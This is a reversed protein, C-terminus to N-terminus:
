RRPSTGTATRAPTCPRRSATGAPTGCITPLRLVPEPEVHRIRPRPRSRPNRAAPRGRRQGSWDVRPSGARWPAGPRCPGGSSMAGSPAASGSLRDPRVPGPREGVGVRAHRRRAPQLRGAADGARRVRERPRQCGGHGARLLRRRRRPEEPRAREWAAHGGHTRVAAVVACAVLVGILGRRSPPFVRRGRPETARTGAENERGSTDSHRVRREKPAAAGPLRRDYGSREGDHGSDPILGACTLSEYHLPSSGPMRPSRRSSRARGCCRRARM